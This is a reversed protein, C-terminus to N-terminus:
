SQDWNGGVQIIVDRGSRHFDNQSPHGKKKEKTPPRNVGLKVRPEPKKGREQVFEIEAVIQGEWTRRVKTNTAKKGL